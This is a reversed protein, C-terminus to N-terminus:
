SIVTAFLPFTSKFSTTTVSRAGAFIVKTLASLPSILSLIRVSFILEKFIPSLLVTTILDCAVAVPILVILVAQTSVGVIGPSLSPQSLAFTSTGFFCVGGVGVGFLGIGFTGASNGCVPVFAM